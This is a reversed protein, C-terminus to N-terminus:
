LASFLQPLFSNLLRTCDRSCMQSQGVSPLLHSGSLGLVLVVLRSNYNKKHLSRLRFCLPPGALVAMEPFGFLGVSESMRYTRLQEVVTLVTFTSSYIIVSRDALHANLCDQLFDSPAKSKSSYVSSDLTIMQRM